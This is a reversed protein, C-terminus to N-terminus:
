SVALVILVACVSIIAAQADFVFRYPHESRSPWLAALNCAGGAIASGLFPAFATNDHPGGDGFIGLILLGLAAVVNLYLGARALSRKCSRTM